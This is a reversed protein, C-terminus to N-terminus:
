RQAAESLLPKLMDLLRRSPAAGSQSARLLPKHWPVVATPELGTWHRISGVTASRQGRLVKNVILKPPPGTWDAILAAARVIGTPSADVVVVALDAAKVIDSSNPWPGTDVVVHGGARAADVVDFVSEPRLMPDGPRHSGPVVGMGAVRTVAEAPVLGSTHVHDVADALDPRPPIGLRIAVGPAAADADVLITPGCRGIRAGLSVAMETRGPSGRAGTVAVLRGAVEVRGAAPELLRIERLVAEAEVDDAMILDVRSSRLRELAARDGVPHIGVVRLGLRHWSNIRAPTAWPTESGVVVVDISGAGDAIEEPRFVRMVLRVSASARAETVLRGEWARASLVTAVRLTM